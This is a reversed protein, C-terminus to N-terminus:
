LQSSNCEKRETNVAAHKKNEIHCYRNMDQFNCFKKRSTDLFQLTYLVHSMRYCMLFEIIPRTIYLSSLFAPYIVSM